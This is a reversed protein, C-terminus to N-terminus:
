PQSPLDIGAYESMLAAKLVGGRADTAIKTPEPAGHSVACRCKGRPRPKAWCPSKRWKPGWALFRGGAPNQRHLAGGGKFKPDRKLHIGLFRNESMFVPFTAPAMPREAGGGRVSVPLLQLPPMGVGPAREPNIGAGGPPLAPAQICGADLGM